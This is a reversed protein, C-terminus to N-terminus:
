DPLHALLSLCLESSPTMARSSSRPPFSFPLNQPLDLYIHPYNDLLCTKHMQLTVM